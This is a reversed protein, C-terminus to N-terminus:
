NNLADMVKLEHSPIACIMWLRSNNIDNLARFVHGLTTRTVLLGLRNMANLGRLGCGLIM